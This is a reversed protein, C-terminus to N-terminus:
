VMKRFSFSLRHPFHPITPCLTLLLVEKGNSVTQITWQAPFSSLSDTRAQLFTDAFRWVLWRMRAYNADEPGDFSASLKCICSYFSSM